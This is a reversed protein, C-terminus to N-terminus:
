NVYDKLPHISDFNSQLVDPFGPERYVRACNGERKPSWRLKRHMGFKPFTRRSHTSFGSSQLTLCKILLSLPLLETHMRQALGPLM